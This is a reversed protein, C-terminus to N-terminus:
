TILVPMLVNKFGKEKWVILFFPITATIVTARDLMAIGMLLGYRLLLKVSVQESIFLGYYLVLFFFFLNLSFPHVNYLAYYAIAPHLAFAFVSVYIIQQSYKTLIESNFYKLIHEFTKILVFCTATSILLNFLAVWHFNQGFAKYILSVIFPYLPFQYTHNIIGDYEYFFTGTNLLNVAINHDEWLKIGDVFCFLFIAKILAIFLLISYFFKNSIM